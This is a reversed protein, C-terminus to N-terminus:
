HLIQFLDPNYKVCKVTESFPYNSFVHKRLPKSKKFWCKKNLSHVWWSIITNEWIEFLIDPLANHENKCFITKQQLLFAASLSLSLSFFYVFSHWRALSCDASFLVSTSSPHSLTTSSPPITQRKLFYLTEVLLCVSSMVEPAPCSM